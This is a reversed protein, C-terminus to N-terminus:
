RGAPAAAHSHGRGCLWILGVITLGLAVLEKAAFPFQGSFMLQFIFWIALTAACAARLEHCAIGRDIGDELLRLAAGLMLALPAFGSWGGVLLMGGFCGLGLGITVSPPIGFVQGLIFPQYNLQPEPPPGNLEYYTIVMTLYELGSLRQLIDKSGAVLGMESLHDSLYASISTEQRVYRYDHFAPYMFVVVLLTGCVVAMSMQFLHQPVSARIMFATLALIVLPILVESKSGTAITALAGLALAEALALMVGAASRTTAAVAFATAIVLRGGWLSFLQLFGALGAFGFVKASSEFSAGVGLVWTVFVRLLVMAAGALLLQRLPNGPGSARRIPPFARKPARTRAVVWYGAGLLALGCAATLVAVSWDRFTAHALPSRLTIWNRFFMEDDVLYVLAKLFYAAYAFLVMVGSPYFLHSLDRLTVILYYIMMGFVLQGGLFLWRTAEDQVLRYSMVFTGLLVLSHLLLLIEKLRRLEVGATPSGAANPAAIQASRTLM